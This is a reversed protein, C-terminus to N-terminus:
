AILIATCLDYCRMRVWYIQYASLIDNGDRLEVVDKYSEHTALAKDMISIRRQVSSYASQNPNLCFLKKAESACWQINIEEPMPQGNYGAQASM